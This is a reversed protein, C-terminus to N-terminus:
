PFMYCVCAYDSLNKDAQSTLCSCHAASVDSLAGPIESATKRLQNALTELDITVISKNLQLSHIFWDVVWQMINM